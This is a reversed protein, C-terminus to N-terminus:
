TKAGQYILKRIALGDEMTPAVTQLSLGAAPLADRVRAIEEPTVQAFAVCPKKGQIKRWAPVIKEHLGSAGVDYNLDLVDVEEVDLLLDVPWLQNGHLHFAVFAFQGAVRRVHPLFIDRYMRPSLVSVADDQLWVGKEPVWCRLGACGIIYGNESEPILALQAQGVEALVDACIGALRRVRDPCDFLDLALNNPGRLAACMDAVGRMLTPTCPFRGNSHSALAQLLELLKRTWPNDLAPRHWDYRDWDAICHDAWMTTGSYSIPCGMIAELWPVSALAGAAFPYDDDLRVYAEWLADIDKLFPEVQISEPKVPGLPLTAALNPYLEPVYFGFLWSGILPRDAAAHNLFAQHRSIIEPSLPLSMSM